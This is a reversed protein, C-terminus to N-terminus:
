YLSTYVFSDSPILSQVYQIDGHKWYLRIPLHRLDNKNILKDAIDWYRRFDPLLISGILQESQLKTLNQVRKVSGQKLYEAQKLSNIIGGSLDQHADHNHINRVTDRTRVLVTWPLELSGVLDYLLGIPMNCLLTVESHAASLSIREADIQFFKTVLSLISQFYSIRRANLYLPSKDGYVFKIAVTADWICLRVSETGDM